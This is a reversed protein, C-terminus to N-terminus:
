QTGGLAAQPRLWVGVPVQGPDPFRLPRRSRSLVGAWANGSRNVPMRVGTTRSCLFSSSVRSETNNLRDDCAGSRRLQRCIPPAYRPGSVLSLALSSLPASGAVGPSPRSSSSNMDAQPTSQPPLPAGGGSPRGDGGAPPHTLTKVPASKVSRNLGARERIIAGTKQAIERVKGAVPDEDDPHVLTSLGMLGNSSPATFVGADAQTEVKERLSILEAAMMQLMLPVMDFSAM